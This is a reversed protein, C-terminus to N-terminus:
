LLHNLMQLGVRHLTGTGPADINDIVSVETAGERYVLLISLPSLVVFTIEIISVM